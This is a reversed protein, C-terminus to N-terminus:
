NGKLQSYISGSRTKRYVVKAFINNFHVAQYPFLDSWVTDRDTKFLLTDEGDYNTIYLEFKIMTKSTLVTSDLDTTIVKDNSMNYIAQSSAISAFCVLMVLILLQKM